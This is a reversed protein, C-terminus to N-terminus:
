KKSSRYYKRDSVFGKCKCNGILCKSKDKKAASRDHDVKQHQCKLCRVFLDSENSMTSLV